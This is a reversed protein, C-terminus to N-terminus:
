NIQVMVTRYCRCEPIFVDVAKYMPRHTYDPYVTGSYYPVTPQMTVSPATHVHPQAQTVHQFLLTAAVGALAGQERDGWAHAPASLSGLIALAAIFKRM